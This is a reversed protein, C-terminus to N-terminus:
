DIMENGLAVMTDKSIGLRLSKNKKANIKLGMRAGKVQFVELLENMKSM